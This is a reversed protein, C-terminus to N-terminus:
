GYVDEYVKHVTCISVMLLPHISTLKETNNYLEISAIRLTIYPYGGWGTDTGVTNVTYYHTHRISSRHLLPINIITYLLVM